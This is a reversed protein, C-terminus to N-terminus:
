FKYSFSLTVRNQDYDGNPSDSERHTFAYALSGSLKDGFARSLRVSAGTRDYSQRFAGNVGNQNFASRAEGTEYFAGITLRTDVIIDLNLSYDFSLSENDSSQTASATSRNISLSHNAFESFRHEIQGYLYFSTRDEPTFGINNASYAIWSPGGGFSVTIVETPLWQVTPGVTYVVSDNQRGSDYISLSASSELGVNLVANLQNQYGAHFLHSSRDSDKYRSDQFLNKKFAYGASFRSDGMNYIAQAGLTNSFEFLEDENSVTSDRIPDTRIGFNDYIYIMWDGAFIEFGINNDATPSLSFDLGGRRSENFYHSYGVNATVGLRTTESINWTLGGSLSSKVSFDEDAGAGALNANDTYEFSLGAGLSYSLSTTTHDYGGSQVAQSRSLAAQNASRSARLAEQASADHASFL